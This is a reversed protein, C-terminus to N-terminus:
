AAVPKSLSVCDQRWLCGDEGCVAVRDSGFCPMNGEANQIDRILDAKKRRYVPVGMEKGKKQIAQFKM